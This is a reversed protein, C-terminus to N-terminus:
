GSSRVARSPSPCTAWRRSAVSASGSVASRSAGHAPRAAGGAPDADRAPPRVPWGDRPRGCCSPSHRPPMPWCGAERCAASCSPCCCRSRPAWCPASRIARAASWWPPSALLMVSFGTAEPSVVGTLAASFGGALGACAGGIVFALFRWLGADIGLSAAVLPADRLLGGERGDAGFVWAYAAVGAILVLWVLIAVTSGRPLAVGFGVLGNAGGTLSEANVAALNILSALALTALAFYHSQLRLIPPAALAAVAAAALPALGSCVPRIRRRSRRRMPASASCRAKRSISPAPQGFVIQYGLGFLAYIGVLTALREAM